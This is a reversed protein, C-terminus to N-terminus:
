DGTGEKLLTTSAFPKVKKGDAVGLHSLGFIDELRACCRTPTM